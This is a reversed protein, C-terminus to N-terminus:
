KSIYKLMKKTYGFPLTSLGKVVRKKVLTNRLQYEVIKKKLENTEKNSFHRVQTSSVTTKKGDLAEYIFHKFLEQNLLNSNLANKLSFGCVKSLNKEQGSKNVYCINYFHPSLAHFSLIEGLDQIDSKFFGIRDNDLYKFSLIDEESNVSFAICDVNQMFVKASKFTNKLLAIRQDMIIRSYSLIHIGIALNSFPNSGQLNKTKYSVDLYKDTVSDFDVVESIQLLNQFESINSCLKHKEKTNRRMLNGYSANVGAKLMKAMIPDLTSDKTEKVSKVFDQFLWAGKKYAYIECLQVIKYGKKSIGYNLEEM